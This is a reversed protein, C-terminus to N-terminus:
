NPQALRLREGPTSAARLTAPTQSLPSICDRPLEADELGDAYLAAVPL